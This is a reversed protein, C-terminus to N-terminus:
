LQCNGHCTLSGQESGDEGANGPYLPAMILRNKFKCGEIQFSEFLKECM